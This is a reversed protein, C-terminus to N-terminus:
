VWLEPHANWLKEIKQADSLVPPPTSGGTIFDDQAHNMDVADYIGAIKGADSYQWMVYAKWPSISPKDVRYNAIWLSYDLLWEPVPALHWRIMSPNTYFVSKKGTRQSTDDMFQKIVMHSKYAPPPMIEEGKEYWVEYDLCLPLQGYNNGLQKYFHNLQASCPYRWDYFHYAGWPLGVGECADRYTKFNSDVFYIDESAKLYVGDVGSAKVKNWDKVTEWHSLDIVLKM